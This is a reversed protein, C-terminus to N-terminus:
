HSFIKGTIRSYERLPQQPYVSHLVYEKLDVYSIFHKFM